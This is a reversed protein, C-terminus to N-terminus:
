LVAVSNHACKKIKDILGENHFHLGGLNMPLKDLIHWLCYRHVTNPMVNKIAKTMALDQDTIIGKPPSYSM